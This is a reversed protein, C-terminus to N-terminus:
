TYSGFVLVVPRKGKFGSLSVVKEGGATRLTFDPAVDGVKIDTEALRARFRRSDRRDACAEGAMALTLLM